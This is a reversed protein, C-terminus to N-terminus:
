MGYAVVLRTVSELLTRLYVLDKATLRRGKIGEIIEKVVMKTIEAVKESILLKRESVHIRTLCEYAHILIDRTDPVNSGVRSILGDICLYIDIFFRTKLTPGIALVKERESMKNLLELTEIVKSAIDKGNM